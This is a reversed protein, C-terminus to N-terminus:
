SPNKEKAESVLKKLEVLKKRTNESLVTESGCYVSRMIKLTQWGIESDDNKKYGLLAGYYITKEMNYQNTFFSATDGCLWLMADELQADTATEVDKQAQATLLDMYASTGREADAVCDTLFASCTNTSAATGSPDCGSSTLSLLAALALISAKKM